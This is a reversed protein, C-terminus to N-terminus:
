RTIRADRSSGVMAERQEIYRAFAQQQSSDLLASIEADEAARISSLQDALQETESELAAIQAADSALRARRLARSQRNYDGRVAAFQKRYDAQIQKVQHTQDVSLGLSQALPADAHAVSVAFLLSLLCSIIVIRM